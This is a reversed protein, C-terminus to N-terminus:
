TTAHKYGLLQQAILVNKLLMTITMPGVGGPVPTIWGAKEKATDFDVDGTLKGNESRNIGVDIVIAGDKIWDGQVFKSKGLAVVVIDGQKIKESLEQTKSNCITVTCNALLLEFAMPRGVLNSAGVIVAHKGVLDVGTSKLLEMCAAPTCSRLLPKKQALRGMNFPHLGDVDKKPSIREVIMQTNIEKPLPLQVLIGDIKPNVNLEDILSLLEAQSITTPRKILEFDIGVNQCAQQKHNVYIVSAPNDGVLITALGPTPLGQNTLAQIEQIIENRLKEAIKKGDIITATM